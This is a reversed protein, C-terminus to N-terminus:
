PTRTLTYEVTARKSEKDETVGTIAGFDLTSALVRQTVRNGGGYEQQVYPAKVAYKQGAETLAIRSTNGDFALTVLGLRQLEKIRPNMDDPGCPHGPQHQDCWGDSSLVLNLERENYPFAAQQYEALQSQLNSRILSEAKARTLNGSCASMSVALAFICSAQGLLAWANRRGRNSRNGPRM